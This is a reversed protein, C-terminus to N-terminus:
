RSTIRTLDATRCSRQLGRTPGSGSEHCLRFPLLPILAFPRRLLRPHPVELTATRIRQEGFILIDIDITRACCEGKGTRGLDSEIKEVAALLEAATHAYEIKIVQNVFSPSDDTMDQPRSVYIASEAVVELGPVGRLRNAAQKLFWERDGLNSGLGLYATEIV